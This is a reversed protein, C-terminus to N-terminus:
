KKIEEEYQFRRKGIIVDEIGEKDGYQKEFATFQKYLEEAKHKPVRDLAYKYIARARDIEKSKEEFKAFATFFKDDELVQDGLAEHAQEYVARAREIEGLKEEFKAFKLWSKVTPHCIVFREMINRSRDIEKYRMEMKVYAGWANEDPEWEM